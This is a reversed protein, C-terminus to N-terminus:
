LEYQVPIAMYLEVVAQVRCGEGQDALRQPQAGRIQGDRDELIVTYEGGMQSTTAGSTPARVRIMQRRLRTGEEGVVPVPAQSLRGVDPWAAGRQDILQEAIPDEFTQATRLVHQIEGIGVATLPEHGRAHPRHRM